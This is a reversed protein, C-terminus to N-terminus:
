FAVRVFIEPGGTNFEFQGAHRSQTSALHARVETYGVAFSVNPRLRYLADFEYFGLSGDLNDVHVNLYQARGDFYFRKSAVWTADIGLTPVPGAQDENQITHKSATQVKVMSSVDTAHVGLTAAIELKESHWFSYGYTIGLTRLSLRTQMPDGPLLVVDRFIIPNAGVVANGSRDLTFYDFSLRHRTAVRVMAQFKPEFDSKELGFDGEGNVVSGEVGARSDARVTTTSSLHMAGLSIRVREDTPSIYDGDASARRAPLALSALLALSAISKAAWNKRSMRTEEIGVSGDGRAPAAAGLLAICAPVRQAAARWAMLKGAYISSVRPRPDRDASFIPAVDYGKM